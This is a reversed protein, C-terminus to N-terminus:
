SVASRLLPEREAEIREALVVYGQRAALGSGEDLAEAVGPQDTAARAQALTLLCFPLSWRM